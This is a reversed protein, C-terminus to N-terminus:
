HLYDRTFIHITHMNCSFRDDLENTSTKKMMVYSIYKIVGHVWTSYTPLFTRRTWYQLDTVIWACWNEDRGTFQFSSQCVTRSILISIIRSPPLSAHGSGEIESRDCDAMVTKGVGRNWGCNHQTEVECMVSIYSLINFCGHIDTFHASSIYFLLRLWSSADYLEWMHAQATSWFTHWFNM